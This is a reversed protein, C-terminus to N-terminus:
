QVDPLADHEALPVHISVVDSNHTQKETPRRAGRPARSNFGHPIIERNLPRPRAGRPARSNFSATYYVIDLKDPRAGRPARSNFRPTTRSSCGVSADHEALPVHISVPVPLVQRAPAIDHEALPVHISVILLNDILRGDLTTSRSPCTFQFM